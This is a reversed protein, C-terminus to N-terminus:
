NAIPEGGNTTLQWCKATNIVDINFPDRDFLISYVDVRNPDIPLNKDPIATPKGISESRVIIGTCETLQIAYTKLVDVDCYILIRNGKVIDINTIYYYRAFLPVYIYNATLITANYEVLFHPQLISTNEVPIANTINIVTTLTKNVVRPDDNTQYLNLIMTM